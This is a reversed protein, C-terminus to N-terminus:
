PVGSSVRTRAGPRIKEGNEAWASRAVEAEGGEARDEEDARARADREHERDRLREKRPRKHLPRAPCAVDVDDPHDLVLRGDLSEQRVDNRKKPRSRRGELEGETDPHSDCRSAEGEDRDQMGQEGNGM